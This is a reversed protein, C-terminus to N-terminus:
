PWFDSEFLTWTDARSANSKRHSEDSLARTSGSLRTDLLSFHRARFERTLKSSQWGRLYLMRILGMM